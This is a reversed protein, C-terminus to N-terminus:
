EESRSSIVRVPFRGPAMFVRKRDVEIDSLRKINM